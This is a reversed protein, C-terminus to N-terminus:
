SRLPLVERGAILCVQAYPLIAIADLRSRVEDRWPLTLSNRKREAGVILMDTGPHFKAVKKEIASVVADVHRQLCASPPTLAHGLEGAERTLTNRIATTAEFVVKGESMRERRLASEYSQDAVTIQAFATKGDTFQIIADPGASSQATLRATSIGPLTGVLATLPRYEELLHKIIGRRLHADAPPYSARDNTYDALLAEMEGPTRALELDARTLKPM